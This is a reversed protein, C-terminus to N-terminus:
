DRVVAHRVARWQPPRSLDPADAEVVTLVGAAQILIHRGMRGAEHFGGSGDDSESFGDTERGLRLPHRCFRLEPDDDATVAAACVSFFRALGDEAEGTHEVHGSFIDQPLIRAEQGPGLAEVGKETEPRNDQCGVLHGVDVLQHHAGDYVIFNARLVGHGVHRKIREFQYPKV